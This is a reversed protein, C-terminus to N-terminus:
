KNEIQHKTLASGIIDAGVDLLTKVIREQSADKEIGVCILSALGHTFTWMKSLLALREADSMTTFRQDKKMEILLKGFFEHVVSSYSSSELTLARYLKRHEAAFLAVGTGMNLFVRETYPRATYELLMKQTQKMVALALADMTKFHHYVPATSSGLRAAVSRATLAALGKKDVVLLAARVVDDKSFRVKPPM